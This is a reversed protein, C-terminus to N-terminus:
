KFIRQQVRIVFLYIEASREGPYGSEFRFKKTQRTRRESAFQFRSFNQKEREGQPSNNGLWFLGYLACESEWFLASCKPWREFGHRWTSQRKWRPPTKSNKDPRDTAYLCIHVASHNFPNPSLCNILQINIYGTIKIVSALNRIILRL